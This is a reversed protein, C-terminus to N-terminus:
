RSVATFEVLIGAVFKATISQRPSSSYKRTWVELGNQSNKSAEDAPGLLQEVQAITMGQRLSPQSAAPADNRSPAQPTPSDNPFQVYKSLAQQIAAPSTAGEPVGDRYWINFRSGDKVREERILIERDIRAQANIADSVRDDRRRQYRARNLEGHIRDREAGTSSRLRNELDREYGSKGRYSSYSASPIRMYDGWTGFGGGGLHFEIHDKKVFVKTVVIREGEHVGVGYRKIDSGIKRYDIPLEANPEVGVGSSAAPMDIKVVVSMGEFHRRLELDDQSWALLAAGFSLLLLNRM